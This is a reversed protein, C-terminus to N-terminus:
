GRLVAGVRATAEAVASDRAASADDETLTRDGSRFRLAFALSRRGEGVQPGSYVDFLRVEELLDGGGARLAREVEAAPVAVDVALAVDQLVPPFPSVAPAPLVERLPLADLELEMACTRAPLGLREVVAPHLEGAQGVVVGDVTLEACRGPHWPAYQAAHVQLQVGAAGAVAHAAAIADAAEAARGPGWWGARERQGALVAAVRVPQAPLAVEIAAIQEDTPRRDVPLAAVPPGAEGPLVVQAVGYLAVDRQGRSVNRVLAELLAPLLTTALQARDSELPNLVAATRRRPDDAGLGFADFV